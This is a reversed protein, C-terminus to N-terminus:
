KWVVNRVNEWMARKYDYKMDHFSFKYLLLIQKKVNGIFYVITVTTEGMLFLCLGCDVVSM